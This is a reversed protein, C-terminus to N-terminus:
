LKKVVFNVIAFALLAVILGVVSYLITEKAAKVHTQEGNSTIYRIGGIIIMVVAVAGAVFLLLNVINEIITNLETGSSSGGGAKDVGKLIEEKPDVDAAHAVPAILAMSGLLLAAVLLMSNTIKKFMTQEKKM